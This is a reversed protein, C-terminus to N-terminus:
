EYMVDTDANTIVMFTKGRKLPLENGDEDTIIIRGDDSTRVWAGHIYKGDQFIEAAGSGTMHGAIYQYGNQFNLKVRLIILNQFVLPENTVRDINKGTASTRTYGVGEEYEYEAYSANNLKDKEPTTYQKVTIHRASEGRTLAEDTFLYPRMKYEANIDILHNHLDKVMCTLNHPEKVFTERDKYRNGLLDYFKANKQFGWRQMNAAVDVMNGKVTAMGGSAFTADFSYAIPVMTMRASRVGGARDPYSDGFLALLKSSGSGDNPIQIIVSAQAVGWHPYADEANDLVIMIPTYAETMELGTLPSQGDIVPNEEYVEKVPIDTKVTNPTLTGEAFAFTFMLLAAVILSVIKKM